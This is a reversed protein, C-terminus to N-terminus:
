RKTESWRAQAIFGVDQYRLALELDFMELKREQPRALRKALEHPHDVIM